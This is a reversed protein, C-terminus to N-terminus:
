SCLKIMKSDQFTCNCLELLPSVKGGDMANAFSLQYTAGSMGHNHTTFELIRPGNEQQEAYYTESMRWNQKRITCVKQGFCLDIVDKRHSISLGKSEIRFLLQDNPLSTVTASGGMLAGQYGLILPQQNIYDPFLAIGPAALSQLQFAM